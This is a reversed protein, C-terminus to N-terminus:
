SRLLPAQNRLYEHVADRVVWAISVRKREAAKKLDSYDDIPITVSLRAPNAEESETTRIPNKKAM